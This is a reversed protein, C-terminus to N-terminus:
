LPVASAHAVSRHKFLLASQVSYFSVAVADSGVALELDDVFPKGGNFFKAFQGIGSKFELRAYGTEDFDSAYGWGGKDVDGQGEQPYAALVEKLTSIASTRSTSSPWRWATMANKDNSATSWCNNAGPKCATVEASWAKPVGIVATGVVTGVATGLTRRTMPPALAEAAAWFLVASIIKSAAMMKENEYSRQEPVVPVENKAAFENRETRSAGASDGQAVM